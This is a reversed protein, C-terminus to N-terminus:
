DEEEESESAGTWEDFFGGFRESVVKLDYADLKRAVSSDLGCLRHLLEVLFTTEVAGAKELQQIKELDRLQLRRNFVLTDISHEMKRIKYKIPHRLEIPEYTDLGEDQEDTNDTDSM